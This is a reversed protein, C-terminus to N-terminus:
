AQERRQAPALWSARAPADGLRRQLIGSRLRLYDVRERDCAFRELQAPLVPHGIRLAVNSGRQAMLVRPLLWTRLRPQLLGAAHFWAPARAAVHVPLVAARGARQLAAIGQRWAPEHVSCLPWRRAAVEAAPFALLCGGGRLWALAARAAGFNAAPEDLEIPLALERLEPVSRLVDGRVLVRVDHRVSRLLSLLLVGEMAGTPHNAVVLLPGQRPVRDLEGAPLDVELELWRLCARLFSDPGSDAGIEDLLDRRQAAIQALGSARLAAAALLRPVTREKGRRGIMRQSRESRAPDSRPCWFSRSRGHLRPCDSALGHRPRGAVTRQRAGAALRGM